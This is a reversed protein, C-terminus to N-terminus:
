TTMRIEPSAHHWPNRAFSGFAAFTNAKAGKTEKARLLMGNTRKTYGLSLLMPKVFPSVEGFQFPARSTGARLLLSQM